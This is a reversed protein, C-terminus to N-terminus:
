EKFLRFSSLNIVFNQRLLPGPHAFEGYSLRTYSYEGKPKSSTDTYTSPAFRFGRAKGDCQVFDEIEVEKESGDNLFDVNGIGTSLVLFYYHKTIKNKVISAGKGSIKLLRNERNYVTTFGSGLNLTSEKVFTFEPKFYDEQPEFEIEYLDKEKDLLNFYIKEEPTDQLVLQLDDSSIIAEENIHLTNNIAYAVKMESLPKTLDVNLMYQESTTTEVEVGEVNFLYRESNNMKDVVRLQSITNLDNYKSFNTVELLYKDGRRRILTKKFEPFMGAVYNGNILDANAFGNETDTLFIDSLHKVEFERDDMLSYFSQSTYSDGETTLIKSGHPNSISNDMFYQDVKSIYVYGSGLDYIGKNYKEKKADYTYKLKLIMQSKTFEFDLNDMGVEIQLVKYLQELVAAIVKTDLTNKKSCTFVPRAGFFHTKKFERKIEDAYKEIYKAANRGVKDSTEVAGIQGTDSMDDFYSVHQSARRKKNKLKLSLSYLYSSTENDNVYDFVSYKGIEQLERSLQDKSIYLKLLNNDIDFESKDFFLRNFETQGFNRARNTNTTSLARLSGAKGDLKEVVTPLVKFYKSPDFGVAKLNFTNDSFTRTRYREVIGQYFYRKLYEELYNKKEKFSKLLVEFMDLLVGNSNEYNNQYDVLFGQSFGYQVYYLNRDSGPDIMHTGVFDITKLGLSSVAVIFDDYNNFLKFYGKNNPRREYAREPNLQETNEETMYIEGTGDEKIVIVNDSLTYDITGDEQLCKELNPGISITEKYGAFKGNVMYGSHREDEDLNRDNFAKLVYRNHLEEVFDALEYSSLEELYQTRIRSNEAYNLHIILKTLCQIYKNAVETSITKQQLIKYANLFFAYFSVSRELDYSTDKDGFYEDIITILGLKEIM